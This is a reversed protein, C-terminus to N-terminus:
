LLFTADRAWHIFTDPAIGVLLVMVGTVVLVVASWADVRRMVVSGTSDEGSGEGTAPSLLSMAIRLYFFATVVAALVGVMLLGYEQAEATASFIELKAVFGGTLPIGAQALVFFILFGGLVPRRLALGRYDDLSHSDDGKRTALTIVAFAGISMFSYVFLYFLAAERGRETQTQFGMLVYGAHAISSYALMRKVDTQVVAAVSGVVLSLVALVWVAPRWDTSYLPFAVGFVRILAAFAAAKTAASMFATVPTPSGQYVDPTWMHFPVAAVKFGLGVLLLAFGALLTGQDLLTNQALFQGIGTLSTTGTAGYTLAVGYLFVASSFAGLVFYKIGAEQSAARRRDFAALVYLPISLVELAVFVVILDNASTMALMGAGSLLLLALYEPAELGERRLYAVSLLVALLTAILVVVGLFVAFLDVRLMGSGGVSTFTTIPGDDRVVNWLRFELAGAAVIGAFALVLCVPMTARRARLLAKALVIAVGAAALALVPGVALWDISPAEIPAVGLIM